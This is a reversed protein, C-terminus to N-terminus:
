SMISKGERKNIKNKTTVKLLIIHPWLETVKVVAVM